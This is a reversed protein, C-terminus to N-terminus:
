GGTFAKPYWAIVVTQDKTLESLKYTQGDSGVLEFNPAKDGLKLPEASSTAMPISALLLVALVGVSIRM